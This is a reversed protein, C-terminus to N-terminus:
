PKKPGDIVEKMKFVWGCRCLKMTKIKNIENQLRESRRQAIKNVDNTTKSEKTLKAKTKPKTKGFTKYKIKDQLKDLKKMVEDNTIFNNAAINEVMEAAKDSETENETWAEPKDLNLGAETIPKTEPKPMKPSADSHRLNDSLM